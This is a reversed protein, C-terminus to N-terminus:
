HFSPRDHRAGSNVLVDDNLAAKLCTLGDHGFPMQAQGRSHVHLRSVLFPRTRLGPLFGLQTPISRHHLLQSYRLGFGSHRFNRWKTMRAEVCDGTVGSPPLENNGPEPRPLAGESLGLSRRALGRSQKRARHAYGSRHFDETEDSFSLAEGWPM